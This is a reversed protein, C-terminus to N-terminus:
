SVGGEQAKETPKEGRAAACLEDHLKNIRKIADILQRALFDIGDQFDGALDGDAVGLLASAAGRADRLPEEMALLKTLLPNRETM